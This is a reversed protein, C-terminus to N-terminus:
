LRIVGAKSGAGGDGAPTHPPTQSLAESTGSGLAGEETADLMAEEEEITPPVRPGSNGRGRGRGAPRLNRDAPAPNSGSWHHSNPNLGRGFGDRAGVVAGTFSDTIWGMVARAFAPTYDPIQDPGRRQLAYRNYLTGLVTYLMLFILLIVVLIAFLGMRGGMEGAECAFHTRWEIVFACADNDNGPPLQAVLEPKGAAFVSLDCVFEIVTSAHVGDTNACQSGNSLTIVPRGNKLDLTTNSVGISFDGHDRRIYGAVTEPHPLHWVEHAVPRCVNLVFDHGGPTKFEYDKSAKLPNLDYFKDGDHITCPKEDALACFCCLLCCLVLYLTQRQLM